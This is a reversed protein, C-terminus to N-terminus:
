QGVLAIRKNYTNMLLSIVLSIILYVAMTMAIVEVSQGTINLTSGAFSGVLDPFGIAVALSSNKTLNLYQNTLSPIIARMAQPIIILWLILSRTLNVATAAEKQGKGVSLLGARVIEAIFASTYLSLSLVIATFEPAVVIGGQFNFGKLEPLSWHLSSSFAIGALLPMLLPACLLLRFAPFGVGCRDRRRREARLLAFAALLAGGLALVVILFPGEFIPRPLYLGRNSLFAVDGWSSAQRVSPLQLLVGYWFFVHLLPPVNRIAEIYGYALRAALWNPSLRTVGVFFGIVTAFLIGIFSVFLTNTLGVLFVRFNSNDATYPILHFALDFGARDGLFRFGHSIGAKQLNHQVNSILFALLAASCGVVLAQAISARVGERRWWSGRAVPSTPTRITEAAPM